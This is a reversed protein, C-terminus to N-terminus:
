LSTPQLVPFLLGLCDGQRVFDEGRGTFNVWLQLPKDVLLFCVLFGAREFVIWGVSRRPSDVFSLPQLKNATQERATKRSCM